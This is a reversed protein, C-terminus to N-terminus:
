EGHFDVTEASDIEYPNAIEGFEIANRTVIPNPSGSFNSARFDALSKWRVMKTTPFANEETRTATFQAIDLNLLQKNTLDKVFNFPSNTPEQAGTTDRKLFGPGLRM